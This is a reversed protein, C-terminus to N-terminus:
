FSGQKNLLQFIEELPKDTVKQLSQQLSQPSPHKFKWDNYYQQIGRLFAEEGMYEKLLYVWVSTKLYAVMGYEEENKFETSHTAVPKPAEITNMAQFLTKLFDDLSLSRMEKPISGGFLYNSRYKKAEYVFEFYTNLGEDMWPDRRENSGLISYFWNHGVEHTIVADLSERGAGPSTILTIMPYEMGGSSANRPGEVAAVTPYPYDGIWGSYHRVADEIFEISNSWQKNGDPQSFSFVDIIRDEDLGLTDYRIVFDKDAFWAFDHVSDAKFQLTKKGQGSVSYAVPKTNASKKFSTYNQRGAAKYKELEDKSTLTGTAGVIYNAPLTINVTFSGFESYFEGQDLYPFAHWGNRDYVAPKPYWQCIMFQDEHYGSRSFYPPLKVRFPTKLEIKEGPILKNDLMVKLIDPHDPDPATQLKQGNAEFSLGSISGRNKGQFYKASNKKGSLQKALATNSSSYANPWLHFWIFELTDPSHNIYEMTMYADLSKNKDDLEVVIQYHVEQQWYIQQPPLTGTYESDKARKLEQINNNEQAWLPIILAIFLIHLIVAKMKQLKIIMQTRIVKANQMECKANRMRM